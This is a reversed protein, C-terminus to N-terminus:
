IVNAPYDTSYYVLAINGSDDKLTCQIGAPKIDPIMFSLLVRETTPLTGHVIFDMKLDGEVIELDLERGVVLDCFLLLDDICCNTVTKIIRGRIANKLQADTRIFDGSNRDSDSRLIGGVGPRNDDGTSEAAPNEYYGFFGLAAAGYLIRSAGVLYAIDDVMVGFSDALYRYKVVDKMAQEIEKFEDLFCQIYKKLNPSHKYQSLLMGLGRKPEAM